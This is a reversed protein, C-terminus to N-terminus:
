TSTFKPFLALANLRDIAARRADPLFGSEYTRMMEDIVEPNAFPFDTGFVIREPSAVRDLSGFTQEGPSLANDYWFHRLDCLLQERTLQPLRKDIM